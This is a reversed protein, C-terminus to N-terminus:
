SRKKVIKGLARKSYDLRPDNRRHNSYRAVLYFVTIGALVYNSCNNIIIYLIDIKEILLKYFDVRM